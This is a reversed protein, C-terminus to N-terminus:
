RTVAAVGPAKEDGDCASWRRWDFADAIAKLRQNAQTIDGAIDKGAEFGGWVMAKAMAANAAQDYHSFDKYRAPDGVVDDMLAFDFLRFNAHKEALGYTRHRFGLILRRGKESVKGLWSIPYPPLFGLFDVEPYAAILAELNADLAQDMAPYDGKWTLPLDDLPRCDFKVNELYRNKGFDEAYRDQWVNLEGLPTPAKLGRAVRRAKKFIDYSLLYLFPTEVTPEYLFEPFSRDQRVHNPGHEFASPTLEVIARKVKGTKLAMELTTAQVHSGSGAATLKIPQWGSGEFMEPTFNQSRSTGVIITDFDYHKILGPNQYRGKTSFIPEPGTWKRYYQYPDFLANYGMLLVAPLTLMLIAAAIVLRM